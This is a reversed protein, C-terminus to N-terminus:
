IKEAVRMKASRSRSNRKIEQQSPEIAKKNVARFYKTINGFEDQIHSGDFTSSKIFNKVLRDELSHYTLVVLRGGPALLEQAQMLFAKLAEMEENVAIRLAQFVQSLYRFRNGIINPEIIMLFDHITKISQKQRESVIAQALTRANRVEGFEGLLQQLEDASLKNLLDAATDGSKTNMRMDLDADFRYSFGREAADLQHSSVGLDALIGDVKRIGYLRLYKQLERFNSEVFTFRPDSLTNKQAEPDQDFGLLRGNQSLKNVILRSHGGGGFTVDVYIGGEPLISLADVCEGLLVPIHYEEVLNM